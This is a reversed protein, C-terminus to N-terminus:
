KTEPNVGRITNNNDNDGVWGSGVWVRGGRVFQANTPYVTKM